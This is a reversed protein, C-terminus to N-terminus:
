TQVVGEHLLACAREYAIAAMALRVRSTAASRPAQNRAPAGFRQPGASPAPAPAPARWLPAARRRPPCRAATAPGALHQAHELRFRPCAAPGAALRGLADLTEDIARDGITHLAVQPALTPYPLAAPRLRPRRSKPDVAPLARFLQGAPVAPYAHPGGREASAGPRAPGGAGLHSTEAHLSLPLCRQRGELSTRARWGSVRAAVPVQPQQLAACKLLRLPGPRPRAQLGAACASALHAHLARADTARLGHYGPADTYPAHLLATRAGLSGDVFGKLGGWHLRGGPHRTGNAAVLAAARERRLAADAEPGGQAQLALLGPAPAPGRAPTM